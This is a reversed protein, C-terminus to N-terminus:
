QIVGSILLFFGMTLAVLLAAFCGAIIVTLVALVNLAIEIITM